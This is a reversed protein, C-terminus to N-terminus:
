SGCRLGSVMVGCRIMLKRFKGERLRGQVLESLVYINDVCSRKARFGAQGENHVCMIITCIIIYARLDAGSHQLPTPHHTHSLVFVIFWTCAWRTPNPPTQLPMICLAESM